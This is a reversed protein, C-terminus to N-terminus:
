PCHYAGRDVSVAAPEPCLSVDSPAAQPCYLCVALAFMALVSLQIPGTSAPRISVLAAVYGFAVVAVLRRPAPSRHRVAVAAPLILLSMDHILVHPSIAFAVIVALGLPADPTTSRRAARALFGLAGLVIFVTVPTALNAPVLLQVFGSVSQNLQPGYGFQSQWTTALRLIRIYGITPAAGLVIIPVGVLLASSIAFSILSAWHRRLALVLLFPLAYQPKMITLALFVGARWEQGARIAFFAATFLALLLVSTQGQVAIAIFIPAFSLCAAWLLVSGRGTLRLYRQVSLIVGGLLLCNISLWVVWAVTYPLAGLPAMLLALYPPYVYPLVGGAM